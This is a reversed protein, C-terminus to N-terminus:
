DLPVIDDEDQLAAAREAGILRADELGQALVAEGGTPDGADRDAGDVPRDDGAVPRFVTDLLQAAEPLADGRTHEANRENAVPMVARKEVFCARQRAQSEAHL